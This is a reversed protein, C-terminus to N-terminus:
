SRSLYKLQLLKETEITKVRIWVLLLKVKLLCINTPLSTRKHKQLLEMQLLKDIM